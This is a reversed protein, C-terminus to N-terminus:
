SIRSVLRSVLKTGVVEISFEREIQARGMDGIHKALKPSEILLKLKDYFQENNDALLGTERDEIVYNNYGWNTAVVPVGAAMYQLAKYSCKGETYRNKPLPMVGIDFDAIETAQGELSWPINTVKVGDLQLNCNSVVRLELPYEKALRRLPEGIASLHHLNHGYGVWGIVHPKTDINWKKAPVGTIEVASPLITVQKTYRLAEDALFPNGAIVLDACAVTRAFRSRRVKCSPDGARDNRIFIADDFDFILRKALKRLLLLDILPLLKKQLIVVDYSPLRTLLGTKASFTTPWPLAEADIGNTLLEPLLNLVRIRSSGLQQKKFVFLVKLM